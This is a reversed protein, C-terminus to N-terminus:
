ATIYHTEQAAVAIEETKSLFTLYEELTIETEIMSNRQKVM